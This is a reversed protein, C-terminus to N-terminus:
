VRHNGITHLLNVLEELLSALLAKQSTAEPKENLMTSNSASTVSATPTSSVTTTSILTSTITVTAFASTTVTVSQTSTVAVPSPPSSTAPPSNNCSSTSTSPSSSSSSSPISSASTTSAAQQSQSTSSSAPAASSSSSATSTPTAASSSSSSSSPSNCDKCEGFVQTWFFNSQGKAKYFGACGYKPGAINAKHGASQIWANFIAKSDDFSAFGVNEAFSPGSFNVAKIRDGLQVKGPPGSHSMQNTEAQWLSQIKAAETLQSNLCVKPLGNKTRYDNVMTLMANDEAASQCSILSLASIAILIFQM